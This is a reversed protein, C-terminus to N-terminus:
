LPVEDDAFMPEPWDSQEALDHRLSWWFDESAMRDADWEPGSVFIQEDAEGNVREVLEAMARGVVAAAYNTKRSSSGARRRPTRRPQKPAKDPNYNAIITRWFRPDAGPYTEDLVAELSRGAKVQTYIHHISSM